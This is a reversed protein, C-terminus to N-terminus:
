FRERSTMTGALSELAAPQRILLETRTTRIIGRQALYRLARSLSEPTTGIMQAMENRRIPIKLIVENGSNDHSRRMLLLLLRATRQRVSKHSLILLQDESERLEQALKAMFRLSLKASEELMKIMPERPITCVNGAEIVEATASYPEGALLARHGIVDGPGLLRVVQREARSGVKFLKVWGSHICYIAFSPTSEYFIVEGRQYERVTKERDLRAVQEGKLVSFLTNSRLSCTTCDPHRSKM